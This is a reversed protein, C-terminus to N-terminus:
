RQETEASRVRTMRIAWTNLPQRRGRKELQRRRQRLSLCNMAEEGWDQRALMAMVMQTVRVKMKVALTNSCFTSPLTRVLTYVLSPSAVPRPTPPITPSHKAVEKPLSITADKLFVDQFVKYM